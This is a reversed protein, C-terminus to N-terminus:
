YHVIKWLFVNQTKSHHFKAFCFNITCYVFSAPVTKIPWLALAIGFTSHLICLTRCVFPVVLCVPHHLSPLRLVLVAESLLPFIKGPSVLKSRFYIYICRYFYGLVSRVAISPLFCNRNFIDYSFRHFYETSRTIYGLIQLIASFLKKRFDNVYKRKNLMKEVLFLPFPLISICM